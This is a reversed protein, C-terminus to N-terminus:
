MLMARRAASIDSTSRHLDLFARSTNRGTSGIRSIQGILLFCTWWSGGRPRIFRARAERIKGTSVIRAPTAASGSFQPSFVCCCRSRASCDSFGACRGVDYWSATLEQRDIRFARSAPQTSVRDTLASCRSRTAAYAASSGSIAAKCACPWCANTAAQRLARARVRTGSKISPCLPRSSIAIAAPILGAASVRMRRKRLGWAM